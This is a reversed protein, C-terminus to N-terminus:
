RTTREEVTTDSPRPGGIDLRQALHLRARHLRTRVTGPSLNLAYAIQDHTLESWAHLLLVERESPSLSVLAVALAPGLATADMRADIENDQPPPGNQQAARAYARLRRAERRRHMRLLNATIGYLWPLASSERGDFRRRGRFARAFTEAALEQALDEGVRRYLYRYISLYHREFILEFREPHDESRMIVERDAVSAM